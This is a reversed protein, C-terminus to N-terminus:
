KHYSIQQNNIKVNGCRECKDATQREKRRTGVAVMKLNIEM